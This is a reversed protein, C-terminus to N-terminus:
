LQILHPLFSTFPSFATAFYYNGNDKGVGLMVVFGKGGKGGERSGKDTERNERRM